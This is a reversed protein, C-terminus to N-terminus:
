PRDPPSRRAPAAQRDQWDQTQPLAPQDPSPELRSARYDALSKDAATSATEAADVEALEGVTAGEMPNASKLADALGTAIYRRRALVAAEFLRDLQEDKLAIPAMRPPPRVTV